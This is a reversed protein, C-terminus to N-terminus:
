TGELYDSFMSVPTQMGRSNDCGPGCQWDQLSYYDCYAAGAYYVTKLSLDANYDQASITGALCLMALSVFINKM